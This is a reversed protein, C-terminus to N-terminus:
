SADPEATGAAWRALYGDLLQDLLPRANRYNDEVKKSPRRNHACCNRMAEIAEMREKLGALLVADDEDEIPVRSLEERFSDYGEKSRILTLLDPLKPEPRKNLGVYQSFTLHFFQNEARGKMNDAKPPEKAVPQMIEECLLNYADGAQYAHLYILSLVRRLKMELAFIEETWGALDAQLLPDEFKILHVVPSTNLGECFEDVVLRLSATEDPLDLAFGLLVRRCPTSDDDAMEDGSRELRSIVMEAIAEDEFENLNDALVDALCDRIIEVIETDPQQHYVILFEFIM